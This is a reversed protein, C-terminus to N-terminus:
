PLHLLGPTVTYDVIEWRPSEVSTSCDTGVPQPVRVPDSITLPCSCRISAENGPKDGWAKMYVALSPSILRPVLSTSLLMVYNGAPQSACLQMVINIM